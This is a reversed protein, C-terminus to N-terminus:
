ISPEPNSLKGAIKSLEKLIEAMEQYTLLTGEGQLGNNTLWVPMTADITPLQGAHIAKDAHKSRNYLINLRDRMSGDGSQFTNQGSWKRIIEYAQYSQATFNEFHYVARLYSYIADPRNSIYDHLTLRGNEHEYFSMESGRLFKFTYAYYPEKVTVRLMANLIFNAVWHQCQDDHGTMDIVNCETLNSLEPAVFKDMAYHSLPM